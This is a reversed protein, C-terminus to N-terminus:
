MMWLSVEHWFDYDTLGDEHLMVYLAIDEQM